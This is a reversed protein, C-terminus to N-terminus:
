FNDLKNFKLNQNIYIKYSNKVLDELLYYNDYDSFDIWKKEGIRRFEVVNGCGNLGIFHRDCFYRQFENNGSGEFMYSDHIIITFGVEWRPEKKCKKYDCKSPIKKNNELEIM